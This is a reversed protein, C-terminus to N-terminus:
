KEGQEKILALLQGGLVSDSFYVDHLEKAFAADVTACARAAVFVYGAAEASEPKASRVYPPLSNFHAKAAAVGQTKALFVTEALLDFWKLAAQETTANKAAGFIKADGMVAGAWLRAVQAQMFDSDNLEIALAQMEVQDNFVVSSMLISSAKLERHEVWHAVHNVSRGCLESWLSKWTVERALDLDADFLLRDFSSIHLCNLNLFGMEEVAGYVESQLLGAEKTEGNALLWAFRTAEPAEAFRSPRDKSRALAMRLGLSGFTWLEQLPQVAPDAQIEFFNRVIATPVNWVVGGKAGAKVVAEFEKRQLGPFTNLRHFWYGYQLLPGNSGQGLYEIMFAASRTMAERTQRRAWAKDSLHASQWTSDSANLSDGAEFELANYLTLAIRQREWDSPPQLHGSVWFSRRARRVEHPASALNGRCHTLDSLFSIDPGVSRELFPLAAECHDILLGGIRDHLQRVRPNLALGAAAFKLARGYRDKWAAESAASMYKCVPDTDRRGRCNYDFEAGREKLTVGQLIELGKKWDALNEEAPVANTALPELDLSISTQAHVPMVLWFSMLMVLTTLLNRGM